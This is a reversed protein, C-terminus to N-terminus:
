ASGRKALRQDVYEREASRQLHAKANYEGGVM